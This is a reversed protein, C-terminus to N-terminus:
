KERGELYEECEERSWEDPNPCKCVFPKGQKESERQAQYCESALKIEVDWRLQRLEKDKSEKSM